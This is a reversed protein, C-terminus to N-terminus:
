KGNGLDKMERLMKNFTPLLYSDYGLDRSLYGVLVSDAHLSEVLFHSEASDSCPKHAHITTSPSSEMEYGEKLLLKAVDDRYEEFSTDNPLEFVFIYGM